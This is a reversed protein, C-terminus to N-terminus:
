KQRNVSLLTRASAGKGQKPKPAVPASTRLRINITSNSEVQHKELTDGSSLVHGKYCLYYMDERVPLREGIKEMVEETTNSMKLSMTLTKGEWTRFFVQVSDNQQLVVSDNQKLMLIDNNKVSQDQLTQSDALVVDFGSQTRALIHTCAPLGEKTEVMLKIDAVTYWSKVDLSVAREGRVNVFVRLKDTPSVLVHLPQDNRLDCQSLTQNDELQRGAYMLIQNDRLIGENQEIEAKLDAVRNSKKVNLKITKGVSPIKVSIQMGDTVHLDVSSNTTINYDALKDANKLHIGAFFLEQASKDIGEMASFKSKVQDVTDTCNVDLAVTKLMKVYIKYSSAPQEQNSDMTARRKM